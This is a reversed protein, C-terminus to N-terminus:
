PTKQSGEEGEREREREKEGKREIEKKEECSLYCIHLYM